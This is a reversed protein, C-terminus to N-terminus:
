KVLRYFMHNTAPANTVTYNGSIIGVPDIVNSWAPSSLSPTSQLTFGVAANTWSLIANTQQQTISLLLPTTTITLSWGGTIVGSDPSTDDVVYLSWTGNPDTGIFNTLTPGMLSATAPAPAPFDFAFPNRQTPKFTGSVLPTDLPLNSAAADDLTIDLNTVPSKNLSGTNGMLVANQGQPGVLVIDVDSPFGHSFGSLEVTVKTVISGALGTVQNTSPYPSAATPPSTSDNIIIPNTNSFTFTSAIAPGALFIATLSHFLARATM